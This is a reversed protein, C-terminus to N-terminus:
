SGTVRDVGRPVGIIYTKTVTASTSSLLTGLASLLREKARSYQRDIEQLTKEYPNQQFRGMVAKSDSVTQPAFLPLSSGLIKAVAYTAFQQVCRFYRAQDATRTDPAIAHISIFQDSVTAGVDELEGLLGYDYVNLSMTTDDVEEVTVGLVARIDDFTTYTLVSM